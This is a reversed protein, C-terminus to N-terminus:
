LVMTISHTNNMSGLPVMRTSGTFYFRYQLAM